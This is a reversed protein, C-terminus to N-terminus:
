ADWVIGEQPAQLLRADADRHVVRRVLGSQDCRRAFAKSIDIFMLKHPHTRSPIQCCAAIFLVLKLAELPPMAAFVGERDNGGHLKRIEMAVYRSRYVKNKDDGRNIDVWRGCIPVRGTRSFCQSRPVVEWVGM